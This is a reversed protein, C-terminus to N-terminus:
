PEEYQFEIEMFVSGDPLNQSMDRKGKIGKKTIENPLLDLQKGWWTGKLDSKETLVIGAGSKITSTIWNNKKKPPNIYLVGGQRDEDITFLLPADAPAYTEFLDGGGREQATGWKSFSSYHSKREILVYGNRKKDYAMIDLSTYVADGKIGPGNSKSIMKIRGIHEPEDTIKVTYETNREDNLDANSFILVISKINEEPRNRYFVRETLGSWNEYTWTEGIKVLAQRELYKDNLLSKFSFKVKRAKEVEPTFVHEYYMIGGKELKVDNTYEAACFDDVAHVSSGAPSLDSFKPTDQYVKYPPRNWNYLAFESYVHEFKPSYQMIIDRVKPNNRAKKLTLPVFDTRGSYQCFFFFLMYSAYQRQSGTEWFLRDKDLTTFFTDLTKHEINYDPFVFHESWKATAEGLCNRDKDGAYFFFGLHFQFCHFLEHVAVSQIRQGELNKNIQVMCKRFERSWVAQGYLGMNVLDVNFENDPEKGLLNKFMPWAKEFAQKVLLAKAQLRDNEADSLRSDYYIIRAIGKYGPIDFLVPAYKDVAPSAHAEFYRSLSLKKLIENQKSQSNFFSGPQDSPLLFPGLKTKSEKSLSKWNDSLWQM